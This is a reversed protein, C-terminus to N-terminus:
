RLQGTAPARRRGQKPRPGNKLRVHSVVRRVYRVQRAHGAVRDIEAQDQAIGMLYVTRNVTEVTYNIYDVERDFSLRGVLQATIWSDRAYGSIGGPQRIEIENIVTKVGSARWALRVAELRRAQTAVTGTLLVRGESISMDLDTVLRPDNKIWLSTITAAIALDSAAGTVGREEAAATAVTAGAGVALSTCGGLTAALLAAMMVLLVPVLRIERPWDAMMRADM